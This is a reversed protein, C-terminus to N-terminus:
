ESFMDQMEGCLKQITINVNSPQM